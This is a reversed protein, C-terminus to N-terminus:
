IKMSFQIRFYKRLSEFNLDLFEVTLNRRTQSLCNVPSCGGSVTDIIKGFIIISSLFVLVIVLM